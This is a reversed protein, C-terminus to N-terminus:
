ILFPLENTEVISFSLPIQLYIPLQLTWEFNFQFFAIQRLIDIFIYWTDVFWPGKTKFYNKSFGSFRKIVESSTIGYLNKVFNKFIFCICIKIM